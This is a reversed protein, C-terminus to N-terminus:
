YSKNGIIVRRSPRRIADYGLQRSLENPSRDIAPVDPAEYDGPQTIDRMRSQGLAILAPDNLM